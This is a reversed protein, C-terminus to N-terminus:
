YVFLALPRGIMLLSFSILDKGQNDSVLSRSTSLIAAAGLLQGCDSCKQQYRVSFCVKPYVTIHKNVHRIGFFKLLGRSAM